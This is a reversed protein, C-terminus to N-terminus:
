SRKRGVLRDCADKVNCRIDNCGMDCISWLAPKGKKQTFGDCNEPNGDKPLFGGLDDVVKRSEDGDHGHEGEGSFVPQSDPWHEGEEVFVPNGDSGLTLKVDKM